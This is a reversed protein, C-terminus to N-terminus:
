GVEVVLEPDFGNALRGDPRLRQEPGPYGQPNCVVRTPGIPYDCADHTHGHVWLAPRHKEMLWELDSAFAPNLSSGVFRTAISKASPLHHTVVVTPGDFPDSLTRDLYALDRRHESAAHWPMFRAVHGDAERYRILRHDNMTRGAEIMSPKPTGDLRYDTWLTCGLFRVGGIVVTDRSLLHIRDHQAAAQRAMTLDDQLLEHDYEHNGPVFIIPQDLLLPEHAFWEISRVCSNAVDGAVVAVDFAPATMPLRPAFGFETHLDSLIWLRM